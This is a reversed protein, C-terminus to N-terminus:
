RKVYKIKLPFQQQSPLKGIEFYWNSDRFYNEITQRQKYFEYILIPNGEINTLIGFIIEIYTIRYCRYGKGQQRQNKPYRLNQQKQGKVLILRYQQSVKPFISIFGCDFVKTHKDYRDM